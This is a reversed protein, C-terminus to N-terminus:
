QVGVHKLLPVCLLILPLLTASSRTLSTAVLLLRCLVLGHALVVKDHRVEILPNVVQDLGQEGVPSLALMRHGCLGEILLHCRKAQNGVKLEDLGDGVDSILLVPGALGGLCRDM